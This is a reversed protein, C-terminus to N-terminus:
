QGRCAKQGKARAQKMHLHAQMHEAQYRKFEAISMDRFQDGEKGDPNNLWAQVKCLKSIGKVKFMAGYSNAQLHRLRHAKFIDEKIFKRSSFEDADQLQNTSIDYRCL